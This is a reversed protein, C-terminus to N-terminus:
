TGAEKTAHKVAVRSHPPMESLDYRGKLKAVIPTWYNNPKIEGNKIKQAIQRSKQPTLNFGFNCPDFGAAEIGLITRVCKECACCNMHKKQVSQWCVRLTVPINLNKSRSCIYEIKDQRTAYFDHHEVICDSFRLFGDITPWSACTTEPPDYISYSSAIVVKKIGQRWAIPAAHGLLGIGHQFGHWWGSSGATHAITDLRGYNLFSRFSTKASSYNLGLKKATDAHTQDVSSWETEQKLYIDSGWLTLLHPKTEFNSIMSFTADVGGSYLVLSSGVSHPLRNETVTMASVCDSFSFRPYMGQYGRMVGTLSALFTEDIEDVIISAGYVWAIPLLNVIAPIVAIGKPTEEVPDSYEVFLTPDRGNMSGFWGPNNGFYIAERVAGSAKIDYTIRNDSISLGIRIEGPM